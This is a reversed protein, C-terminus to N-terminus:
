KDYQKFYMIRDMIEPHSGRFWHVLKPQTVPSLNEKAIQQFARIAANGDGTLQMAYVDARHEIVRSFANQAPASIFSMVTVLLLLIPLAALDNEGRIGWKHAWRRLFFRYAHFALWLGVLSLAIGYALGIYIHKEVYHGMEHAMVTLIEDPQLKKLTTDWLVIRANGGIGNVYANIANTRESMNVEYVQKAPIHSDAALQLIQAKLEQDQLPRFDNYLPDLVVPQIFTVFVILPVSLLWFWFWWRNPSWKLVLRFIWVMVITGVANLLFDKVHDGLFIALTETSIGYALDIKFLFYDVPLFLVDMLLTFLLVFVVMQLFSAKFLKESLSRIRVAVGLLLLILGIQLPSSLFYALSRIRSLSEAKDIEQATMFTHPDASTGVLDRPIGFLNGKLLYVIMVIAYVGFAAGLGIYLRKM